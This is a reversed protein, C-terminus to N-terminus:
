CKGGYTVASGNVWQCGGGPMCKLVENGSPSLESACKQKGGANADLSSSMVIAQAFVASALSLSLVIACTLTIIAKKM